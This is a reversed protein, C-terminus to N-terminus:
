LSLQLRVATACWSEVTVYAVPDAEFETAIFLFPSVIVEMMKEKVVDFPINKIVIATPIVDEDLLGGIMARGNASNVNISQHHGHTNGGPQQNNGSGSSLSTMGTGTSGASLQSLASGPVSASNISGRGSSTSPPGHNALPAGFALPRIGQNPGAGGAPARADGLGGFNMNALAANMGAIDFDAQPYSINEDLENGTAQSQGGYMAEPMFAQFGPNMGSFGDHMPLGYTQSGLGPGRSHNQTDQRQHQQQQGGGGNYMEMAAQIGMGNSGQQGHGGFISKALWAQRDAQSMNGSHQQQQTSGYGAAAAAALNSLANVNDANFLRNPMIGGGVSDIWKGIMDDM